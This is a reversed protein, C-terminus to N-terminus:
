NKRLYKVYEPPLTSVARTYQAREYLSEDPCNIQSLSGRLQQVSEYEHETLWDLLGQEMPRFYELGNRLIASAMMTVNAGVMLMKIADQPSHIGSTAAMDANIRGYLIAIWRLPLRLAQPTSLLVNPRVELAELDIDPQYFRNFMVLANAGADDLKKAMHAMNSFFPSMKIAVPINVVAKVAKLLDVYGQEVANADLNPDTPIHYINMELADAGAQEIQRAFDTWGGLSSGNLSAIIPINTAAKAKRIHNLYGDPGVHYYDAEPFYTRAESFSETGEELHHFLEHQQRTIQEEFLSHLVLASAGADEARKINDLSEWLPCASAVLPTRLTLGLYSTTLDM